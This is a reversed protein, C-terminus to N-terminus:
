QTKRRDPFQLKDAADTLMIMSEVFAARMFIERGNKPSTRLLADQMKERLKSIQKQFRRIDSGKM